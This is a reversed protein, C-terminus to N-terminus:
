RDTMLSMFVMLTILGALGGGIFKNVLDSVNTFIDYTGVDVPFVVGVVLFLLALNLALGIIPKCSGNVSNLARNFADM